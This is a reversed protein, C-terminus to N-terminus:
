DAATMSRYKRWTLAGLLAAPLIVVLAIWSGRFVNGRMSLVILSMVSILNALDGLPISRNGPVVFALALSIPMLVLGTVIV